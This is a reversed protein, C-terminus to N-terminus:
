ENKQPEMNYVFRKLIYISEIATETYPYRHQLQQKKKKKYQINVKIILEVLIRM